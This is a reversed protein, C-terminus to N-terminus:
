DHPGQLTHANRLGCSLGRDSRRTPGTPTSILHRQWPCCHTNRISLIPAVDEVVQANIITVSLSRAFRPRHTIANFNGIAKARPSPPPEPKGVVSDLCFSEIRTFGGAVELDGKDQMACRTSPLCASGSNTDLLRLNM